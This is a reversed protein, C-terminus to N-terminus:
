PQTTPDIVAQGAVQALAVLRADACAFVLHPVVQRVELATALQIADLARLVFQPYPAAVLTLALQGAADSIQNTIARVHVRQHRLLQTLASATTDRAAQTLQDARWLRGLVSFSEPVVLRSVFIQHQPDRLIRRVWDSGPEIRVAKILASTDFFYDM